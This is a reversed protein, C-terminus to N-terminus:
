LRIGIVCVDDVQELEGKWNDFTKSISAQQDEISKASLKLIMENFPRHQFKKGKPGGFQDSFGDTSLYLQDGKKFNITYLQFEDKKEGVGVPMRDSDLEVLKGDSVLAPKNNAAAYTINIEGSSTKHEFCL